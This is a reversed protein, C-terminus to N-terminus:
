RFPALRAASSCRQGAIDGICAGHGTRTASDPLWCPLLFALALWGRGDRLCRREDSRGRVGADDMAASGATCSQEAYWDTFRMGERALRDTNPTRPGILADGYCSLNSIGVDDRGIIL